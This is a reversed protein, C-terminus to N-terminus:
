YTRGRFNQGWLVCDCRRYTGGCFFNRRAEASPVWLPRYSGGPHNRGAIWHFEDEDEFPRLKEPGQNCHTTISGVNMSKATFERWSGSTAAHPGVFGDHVLGSDLTRISFCHELM